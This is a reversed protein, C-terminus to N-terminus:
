KYCLAINFQLYKSLLTRHHISKPCIKNGNADVLFLKITFIKQKVSAFGYVTFRNNWYYEDGKMKAYDLHFFYM